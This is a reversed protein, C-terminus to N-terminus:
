WSNAQPHTCKKLKNCTNQICINSDYFTVILTIEGDYANDTMSEHDISMEMTQFLNYSLANFFNQIVVIQEIAPWKRFTYGSM